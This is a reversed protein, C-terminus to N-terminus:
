MELSYIRRPILGSVIRQRQLGSQESLDSQHPGPAPDSRYSLLLRGHERVSGISDSGKFFQRTLLLALAVPLDGKYIGIVPLKSVNRNSVFIGYDGV